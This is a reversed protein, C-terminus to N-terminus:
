LISKVPQYSSYIFNAKLTLFAVLDGIPSLAYEYGLFLGPTIDDLGTGDL